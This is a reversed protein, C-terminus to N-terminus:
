VAVGAYYLPADLWRTSGPCYAMIDLWPMVGRCQVVANLRPMEVSQGPYPHEPRRPWARSVLRSVIAEQM